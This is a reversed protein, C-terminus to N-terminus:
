TSVTKTDDMRISGPTERAPQTLPALTLLGCGYGKGPGIGALLADTFAAPDTVHLRGEYTVIRLTVNPDNRRRKFTIWDNGRILLDRAPSDHNHPDHASSLPIRFGHTDAQRILWEVQESHTNCCYRKGRAGPKPAAPDHRNRVPNAALRFVYEDDKQIRQLLSDYPKIVAQPESDASNWGTQELLHEWSPRTATVVYLASRYPNDTDIRWLVREQVPQEVIGALLTAKLRQPSNLLRQSKTRRPNIWIRSLYPM